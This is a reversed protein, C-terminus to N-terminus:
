LNFRRRDAQQTAATRCGPCWFRISHATNTDNRSFIRRGRRDGRRRGGRRDREVVLIELALLPGAVTFFSSWSMASASPSTRQAGSNLRQCVRADEAVAISQAERGAKAMPGPRYADTAILPPRRARGPQAARAARSCVHDCGRNTGTRGIANARSTMMAAPPLWPKLAFAQDFFGREPKAQPATSAKIRSIRSHRDAAVVGCYCIDDRRLGPGPKRRSSM